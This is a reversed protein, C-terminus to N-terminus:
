NVPVNANTPDNYYQAGIDLWEFLFKKEHDSLMATHDVTQCNIAADFREFFPSQLAGATSMQPAVTITRLDPAPITNGPNMPDPVQITLAACTVPDRAQQNLLTTGLFLESYSLFHNANRRPDQNLAMRTQPTLLTHCSVCTSDVTVTLPFVFPVMPPTPPNIFPDCRPDNVTLTPDCVIDESRAAEWIPQITEPYNVINRCRYEWKNLASTPDYCFVTLPIVEDVLLQRFEYDFAAETGDTWIDFFSIDFDPRCDTSATKTCTDGNKAHAMTQGTTQGSITDGFIPPNPATGPYQYGNQPAGANSGVVDTSHGHIGDAPSVTNPTANHCGGCVVTEGPKVQIWSQHRQSIRRGRSDVVSIALPVNAPVEVMVSGDPEIPAYGIIERMGQQTSQGFADNSIDFDAGGLEDPIGVSKIVRLFRAPRDDSTFRSTDALYAISLNDSSYGYLSAYGEPDTSVLTALATQNATTMTLPNFVGDMDYVSRIHLLGTNNNALDLDLEPDVGPVKKVIATPRTRAQAVVIDTYLIDEEPQLIPVQTNDAPDFVFLGYLPQAEQVNPDALRAATCPVISSVEQIRCPTWSVLIRNTGDWLPYASSYRGGPSPTTTTTINASTVLSNQGNTIPSLQNPLIARTDDTYNDIDIAVMDGGGFSGTFPRLISLLKGDSMERPQLFQVVTGVTGSDHSQRGYVLKMDTGDPNAQYLHMANRNGANDWRTFIIKGNLLLSPDIDHSQNYSVQSVESSANVACNDFDSCDAEIRHLLAAHENGSENLATYAAKNTNNIPGEDTRVVKTEIQRTSSFIIRGDALFHPAVDEGEEATIDDTIIRKLEQREIHYIWLNWTPPVVDTAREPERMSFVLMTGDFSSEVDKVDGIGETQLLTINRAASSPAARDRVWLDGGENFTLVESADPQVPVLNNLPVPRKVYAIPLDLIVPDPSQDGAGGGCAALLFILLIHTVAFFPSVTNPKIINASSRM